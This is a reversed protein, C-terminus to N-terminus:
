TTNNSKLFNDKNKNSRGKIEIIETLSSDYIDSVSFDIGSPYFVQSILSHINMQLVM